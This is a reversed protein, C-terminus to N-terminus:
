TYVTRIFAANGLWGSTSTENMLRDRHINHMITVINSATEFKAAGMAVCFWELAVTGAEVTM